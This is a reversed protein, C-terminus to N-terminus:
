KGLCGVLSPELIASFPQAFPRTHSNLWKSPWKPGGGKSPRRGNRHGNRPWKQNQARKRNQLLGAVDCTHTVVTEEFEFLFYNSFSLERYRYRGRSLFKHAFDNKDIKRGGRFQSSCSHTRRCHLIFEMIIQM